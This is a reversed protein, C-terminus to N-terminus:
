VTVQVSAWDANGSLVWLEPLLELTRWLV